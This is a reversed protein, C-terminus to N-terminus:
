YHLRRFGGLAQMLIGNSGDSNHVPGDPSWVTISEDSTTWWNALALRLSCTVFDCYKKQQLCRTECTSTLFVKGPLVLCHVRSNGSVLAPVARVWMKHAAIVAFGVSHKRTCKVKGNKRLVRLKCCFAGIAKPLEPSNQTKSYVTLLQNLHKRGVDLLCGIPHLTTKM